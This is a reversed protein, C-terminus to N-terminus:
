SQRHSWSISIEKQIDAVESPTNFSRTPYDTTYVSLPDNTNYLYHFTHLLSLEGGPTIYRGNKWFCLHLAELAAHLIHRKFRFISQDHFGTPHNEGYKSFDAAMCHMAPNVLLSVYPNQEQVAPILGALGNLSKSLLEDVIEAHQIFVDGWCVVIDSTSGDRIHETQTLAQLVAHGDGLGSTIPLIEVNKGLVGLSRAYVDWQDNVLVNVVIFVRRFM